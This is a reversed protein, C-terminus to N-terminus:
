FADDIDLALEIEFLDRPDRLRKILAVLPKLLGLLGPLAEWECEEPALLDFFVLFRERAWDIWQALSYVRLPRIIEPRMPERMARELAKIRRYQDAPSLHFFDAPFSMDFDGTSHLVGGLEIDKRWQKCEVLTLGKPPQKSWDIPIWSM